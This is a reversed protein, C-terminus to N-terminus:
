TLFDIKTDPLDSTTQQLPGDSPGHSLDLLTYQVCRWPWPRLMYVDMIGAPVFYIACVSLPAVLLMQVVM